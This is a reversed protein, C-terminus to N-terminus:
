FENGNVGPLEAFMGYTPTRGISLWDEETFLTTQKRTCGFLLNSWLDKGGMEGRM